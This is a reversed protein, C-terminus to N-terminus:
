PAPPLRQRRDAVRVLHDALEAVASCRGVQAAAGGLRTDWYARIDAWPRLRGCREDLGTLLGPPVPVPVPV